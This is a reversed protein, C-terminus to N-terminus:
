EYDRITVGRPFRPLGDNTLGQYRVTLKKGIYKKGEKYIKAREEHTGMPRVSVEVFDGNKNKWEVIWMVLGKETGDGETFNIIKAEKEDTPKLKILDSSRTPGMKYKSDKNRIMIGEYKEELFKNYYNQMEKEDKVEFTEVNKISKFKKGILKNITKNREIFTVDLDDLLIIDYVHYEIVKEEKSEEATLELSKRVIGVIEQFTVKETFLEGDLYMGPKLIKKLENRIHDLHYYEKGERSVLHVNGSDDISALCRVGDYKRQVMAPYKIKNADKSYDKALMPSVRIKKPKEMSETYGKDKQGNWKANAEVKAQEFPTTENKKGINKGSSVEKTVTTQKGDTLGYQTTITATSKDNDSTVTIMWQKIKGNANVSYLIPFKETPM